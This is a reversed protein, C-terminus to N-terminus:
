VVLAVCFWPGFELKSLDLALAKGSCWPLETRVQPSCLHDRIYAFVQLSSEELVNEIYHGTFLRIHPKGHSVQSSGLCTAIIPLKIGPLQCLRPGQYAPDFGNGLSGGVWTSAGSKIVSLHGQTQNGFPGHVQSTVPCLASLREPNPKEMQLISIM